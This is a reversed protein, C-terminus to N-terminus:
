RERAPFARKTATEYSSNGADRAVTHEGQQEEAKATLVLGGLGEALNNSALHRAVGSTKGSGVGHVIVPFPPASTSRSRGDTIRQAM